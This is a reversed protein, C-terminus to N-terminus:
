KRGTNMGAKIKRIKELGELTLHEKKEMMEAVRVFDKFDLNKKGIIKYKKFLPIIKNVIDSLKSVTFECVGTHNTFVSGCNFYDIFGRM